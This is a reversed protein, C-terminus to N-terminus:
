RPGGTQICIRYLSEAPSYVDSGPVAAAIPIMQEYASIFCPIGVRPDSTGVWRQCIVRFASAILVPDSSDYRVFTAMVRDSATACQAALTPAPSVMAGKTYRGDSWQRIMWVSGDSDRQPYERVVYPTPSPRPRPVDTPRPAATPTPLLRVEGGRLARGIRQVDEASLAFGLNEYQARAGRLRALNVGVVEGRENLLPGGSNGPNLPADTQVYVLDSGPLTRKASIIGRTISAAGPLGAPYGVAVVSQGIEVSPALPLPTAALKPAVLLVLDAEEDAGLVVASHEDGNGDVITPRSSVDGVVHFATLVQGGPFAVFGTGESNELRVRVVSPAIAELIQASTRTPTATPTATATVTATATPTASPSPLPTVTPTTSPTAPALAPLGVSGISIGLALVLVAAVSLLGARRLERM